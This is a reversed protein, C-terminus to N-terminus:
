KFDHVLLTEGEIGEYPNFGEPLYMKTDFGIEFEEELEYLEFTSWDIEDMGKKPDFEAPLYKLTDFGLDIDEELEYLESDNWELDNMGERANFNAPVREATNFGVTIDEDMEFVAIAAISVAEESNTPEGFLETELELREIETVLFDSYPDTQYTNLATTHVTVLGLLLLTLYRLM